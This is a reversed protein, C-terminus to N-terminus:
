LTGARVTPPENKSHPGNTLHQVFWEAALRAVEELAGREEFFHTAHPVLHLSKDRASVLRAYAAENAEITPQDRGGVVMLVAARVYALAGGALDPRGGRSVVASIAPRGAAAVLAAAVGSNGGFYGLPLRRTAPHEGLWDTAKLLRAALRPIDFRLQGTMAGIREERRTLLDVLLTALAAEHLTEAVFRNRVSFRSNGNAIAFLVAGKASEPLTLNGEL